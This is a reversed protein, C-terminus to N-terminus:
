ILQDRLENLRNRWEKKQEWNFTEQYNQIHSILEQKKVEPSKVGIHHPAKLKKSIDEAQKRADESGKPYDTRYDQYDKKPDEDSYKDTRGTDARGSGFHIGM